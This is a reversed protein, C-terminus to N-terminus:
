CLSVQVLQPLHPLLQDFSELLMDGFPRLDDLRPLLDPMYRCGPLLRDIAVQVSCAISGYRLLETWGKKATYPLIWECHPILQESHPVLQQAHPLLAALYPALTPIAPALVPLKPAIIRFTNPALLRHIVGANHLDPLVPIIQGIHPFLTEREELLRELHPVLIELNQLLEPLHPELKAMESSLQPLVPLLEDIHDILAGAHKRLLESDLRDSRICARTVLRLFVITASTFRM